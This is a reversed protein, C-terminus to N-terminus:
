FTNKSTPNNLVGFAILLQLVASVVAGVADSQGANIIGLTSLLTLLQQEGEQRPQAQQIQNSQSQPDPGKNTAVGFIDAPASRFPIRVQAKRAPYFGFEGKVLAAPGLPFRVAIVAALLAFGNQANWPSLASDLNAARFAM